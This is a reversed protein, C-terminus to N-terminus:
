RWGQWWRFHLSAFDIECLPVISRALNGEICEMVEDTMKAGCDASNRSIWESTDVAPNVIPLSECLYM